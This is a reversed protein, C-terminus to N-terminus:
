RQLWHQQQQQENFPLLSSEEEVIESHILNALKVGAFPVQLLNFTAVVLHASPILIIVVVVVVFLRHKRNRSRGSKARM